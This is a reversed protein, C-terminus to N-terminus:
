ENIENQLGRFKIEAGIYKLKPELPNKNNVYNWVSVLHQNGLDEVHLDNKQAKWIVRQGHEDYHRIKLFRLCDIVIANNKINLM